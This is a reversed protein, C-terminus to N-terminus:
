RRLPQDGVPFRTRAFEFFPENQFVTLATICIVDVVIELFYQVLGNRIVAWTGERTRRVPDDAIDYWLVMLVGTWIFVIELSTEMVANQVRLRRNRPLMMQVM